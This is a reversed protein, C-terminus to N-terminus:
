RIERILSSTMIINRPNGNAFYSKHNQSEPLLQVNDRMVNMSSYWVFSIFFVFSFFISLDSDLVRLDLFLSSEWACFRHYVAFLVFAQKYLLQFFKESSDCTNATLERAIAMRLHQVSAEREFSDPEYKPNAM